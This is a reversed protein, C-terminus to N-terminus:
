CAHLLREKLQFRAQGREQHIREIEQHAFRSCVQSDHTTPLDCGIIACIDNHAAHIPCFRDHNNKLPTKCNHIACCPHGVTVGDIVIVWVKNDGYRCLCKHCYHRLEPQGQLCFRLNQSHLVAAFRDKQAGTHPVQLTKLHHRHDELLALLVFTDWVHETTVTFGFLWGTPPRTTTLSSNYLWACNTALTRHVLVVRDDTIHAFLCHVCWSVLM